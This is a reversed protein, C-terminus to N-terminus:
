AACAPWGTGILDAAVRRGAAGDWLRIRRPREDPPGLAIEGIEAPDEGLLVNTGYTLTAPRETTRRLTYCTVGLLTTEEQVGGSDTLVAGAGAELSLFDLYPLPGPLAAAAARLRAVDGPPEMAACARAHLCVVLPLRRALAYLAETIRAVRADDDFNEAAGLAALAYRGRRLGLRRWVARAVAHPAAEAVVDAVTTGVSAIRADPIGEGLLRAVADAGDAYLRDALGDLVVRNVEEPLSRDGCRAGAGVRAIPVGLRAAILACAVAAEDDGAILVPAPRLAGIAEELAVAIVPLPADYRETAALALLSKTAVARAGHGAVLAAQPAGARDLARVVPTLRVAASRSTVLHLAPRGM